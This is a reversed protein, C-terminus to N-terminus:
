ARSAEPVKGSVCFSAGGVEHNATSVRRGAIYSKVVASRRTDNRRRGSGPWQEVQTVLRATHLARSPSKKRNWHVGLRIADLQM